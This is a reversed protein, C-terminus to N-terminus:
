ASVPLALIEFIRRKIEEIHAALAADEKILKSYRHDAYLITTHDVYGLQRGIEPYSLPTLQKILYIASHRARVLTKQRRRSILDCVTIGFYNATEQVILELDVEVILKPRSKLLEAREKNRDIENQRANIEANLWRIEDLLNQREAGILPLSKKHEAIEANLDRITAAMKDIRVSLGSNECAISNVLKLLRMNELRLQPDGTMVPGRLNRIAEKHRLHMQELIGSPKGVHVAGSIVSQEM